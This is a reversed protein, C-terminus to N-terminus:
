SYFINKGEYKEAEKLSLKRPEFSGVGGAIIINPSIFVKNKNTKIIWNNKEKSVEQVRENFHFNTKFPKIQKLLNETLEKGNCEPFPRFIM